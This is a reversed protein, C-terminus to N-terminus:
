SALRATGKINPSRLWQSEIVAQWTKEKHEFDRTAMIGLTLEGTEPEARSSVLFGKIAPLWQSAFDNVQHIRSLLLEVSNTAGSFSHYLESIEMRGSLAKAYSEAAQQLEKGVIQTLSTDVLSLISMGLRSAGRQCLITVALLPALSFILLVLLVRWRRSMSPIWSKLKGNM